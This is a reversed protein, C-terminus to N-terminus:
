RDYSRGLFPTTHGEGRGLLRIERSRSERVLTQFPDGNFCVETFYAFFDSNESIFMPALKGATTTYSFNGLVETRGGGCTQLLTGGRETKYGLIWLDSADNELHVGENEINLQRAWVRQRHLKLGHTVVDELFVEGGEARPTPTVNCDSVSKLVLTRKSDLM